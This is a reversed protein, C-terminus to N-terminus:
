VTLLSNFTPALPFVSSIFPPMALQKTKSLGNLEPSMAFYLMLGLSATFSALTARKGAVFVKVTQSSADPLPYSPVTPVPMVRYLRGLLMETSLSKFMVGVEDAGEFGDSPVM